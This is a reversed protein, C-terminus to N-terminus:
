DLPSVTRDGGDSREEPCREKTARGCYIIHSCCRLLGTVRNAFGFLAFLSGPKSLSIRGAGRALRGRGALVRATRGAWFGQGRPPKYGGGEYHKDSHMMSNVM